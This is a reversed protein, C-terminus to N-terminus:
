GVMFFFIRLLVKTLYDEWEVDLMPRIHPIDYRKPFNSSLKKVIFRCKQFEDSTIIGVVLFKEKSELKDTSM